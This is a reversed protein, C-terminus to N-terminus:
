RKKKLQARREKRTGYRDRIYQREGKRMYAAKVTHSTGPLLKTASAALMSTIPRSNPHGLQNIQSVPVDANRSMIASIQQHQKTRFGLKGGSIASVAVRGAITGAASAPKAYEQERRDLDSSIKARRDFKDKMINLKMQHKASLQKGSTLKKEVRSSKFENRKTGWSKYQYTRGKRAARHEGWKMGIVGYHYLESTPAYFTSM